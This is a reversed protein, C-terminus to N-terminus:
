KLIVPLSSFATTGIFRLAVVAINTTSTCDITGRQGALAPFLYNAWHGLPAISPVTVGSRIVSGASDRATCTLNAANTQDLNAIALGTYMPANAPAFNTADFPIVFAKSGQSSPVAAEYYTGNVNNRFLGQVVVSSDVAAQGWAVTLPSQGNGAEFYASGLAPVTGSLTSTSGASFPLSVPNGSDDRFAISFGAPQTSTNVFFIGTTWSGGAALHPLAPMTQLTLSTKTIDRLPRHSTNSLSLSDYLVVHEPNFGSVSGGSITTVLRGAVTGNNISTFPVTVPNHLSGGYAAGLKAFVCDFFSSGGFLFPGATYTGLLTKGDYLNTTFVPSGTVNLPDNNFLLLLDASNAAATFTIILQNDPGFTAAQVAAASIALAAVLLMICSMGPQKLMDKIRV